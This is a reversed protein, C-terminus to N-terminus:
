DKAIWTCSGLGPCCRLSPSHANVWFDLVLLLNLHSSYQIANKQSPIFNVGTSFSLILSICGKLQWKSKLSAHVWTSVKQAPTFKMMQSCTGVALYWNLCLLIFIFIETHRSKGQVKSNSKQCFIRCCTDTTPKRCVCVPGMAKSVFPHIPPRHQLAPMYTM